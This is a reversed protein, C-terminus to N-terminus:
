GDSAGPGPADNSQPWSVWCTPSYSPHPLNDGGHPGAQSGCRSRLRFGRCFASESKCGAGAPRYERITLGTLECCPSAHPALGPIVGHAVAKVEDSIVYGETFVVVSLSVSGDHSGPGGNAWIVRQDGIVKLPGNEALKALNSEADGLEFGALPELPHQDTRCAQRTGFSEGNM